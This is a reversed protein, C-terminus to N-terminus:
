HKLNPNQTLSNLSEWIKRMEEKFSNLEVCKLEGEHVKKTLQNINNGIYRLQRQTEILDNIIVIKGKEIFTEIFETQTIGLRKSDTKLKKYNKESVRIHIDKKM